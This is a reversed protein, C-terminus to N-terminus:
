GGLGGFRDLGGLIPGHSAICPGCSCEYICPQICRVCRICRICRICSGCENICGSVCEAICGAAVAGGGLADRVRMYAQVDEHSIEAGQPQQLAKLKNELETIRAELHQTSGQQPAAGAHRSEESM